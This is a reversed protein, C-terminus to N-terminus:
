AEQSVTAHARILKRVLRCETSIGFAPVYKAAAAIRARVSDLGISGVFHVQTPIM